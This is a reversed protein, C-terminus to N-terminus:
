LACPNAKGYTGARLFDSASIDRTTRMQKLRSLAELRARNILLQLLERLDRSDTGLILYKQRVAIM